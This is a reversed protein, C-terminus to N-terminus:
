KKRRGLCKLRPSNDPKIKRTVMVLALIFCVAVAAIGGVMLIDQPIDRRLISGLVITGLELKGVYFLLRGVEEKLTTPLRQQRRTKLTKKPKKM